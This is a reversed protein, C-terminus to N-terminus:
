SCLQLRRRVQRRAGQHRTEFRNASANTVVYMCVHTHTHTYARAHTHCPTRARTLGGRVCDVVIFEDLLALCKGRSHVRKCEEEGQKRAKKRREGRSGRIAGSNKKKGVETRKDEAESGVGEVMAFHKTLRTGGVFDGAFKKGHGNRKGTRHQQERKYKSKNFDWTTTYRRVHVYHSQIVRPEHFQSTVIEENKKRCPHVRPIGTHKTENM